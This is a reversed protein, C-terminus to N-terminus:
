RDRNQSNGIMSGLRTDRFNVALAIVERCGARVLALRTRALTEGTATVDDLLWIKGPPPRSTVHFVGSLNSRREEATLGVQSPGPKRGLLEVCRSGTVTCLAEGIIKVQNYGRKRMTSPSTPVVTVTEGPGPLADWEEAAMEALVRGLHREGNFKLRIMLERMVGSHLFAAPRRGTGDPPVPYVRVLCWSCLRGGSEPPRRGCGSCRISLFLTLLKELKSPLAM